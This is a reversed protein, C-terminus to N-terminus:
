AEPSETRQQTSDRSGLRYWQYGYAELTLAHTGDEEPLCTDGTLLNMLPLVQKPDEVTKLKLSAPTGALNFLTVISNGRWDHRVALVAKHRTPLVTWKGWGIEPCEKRLRILREIWNLLSEPDLRQSAVNVREYSFVGKDVLPKVPKEGGRTFGGHLEDSWQMPTRVSQREKLALLEGMGIEEGYWLVPTGPLGFMMSYCLQLKRRDGELMGALRRRVGRGYVQMNAEPGFKEFAKKQIDKPLRGLDLEDHNRLFNAWQAAHPLRPSSRLAKGLPRADGTALAGFLHQNAQFNLVLQMREGKKGFFKMVEDMTVNAEALLIADGSRWSLFERMEDLLGYPDPIDHEIGKLEVVFPVADVRFGSVGLELWYGMIKFIEERVAPNAVNLDPQFEYFRHFYYEGAKEDYTWTTRQVGPFVMGKHADKPKKKSWVYYDRYRSKPDRRAQQFWPHRDSTHNVVLDVIVRIGHLKAQHTFAVFDGLDGLRPDVGYFDSIDYGNDRNPTPYFPLLWVCTVGLGALYDLRRKLGRFDGVGDGNGDQFTEVDLCYIIANKYWLDEIV